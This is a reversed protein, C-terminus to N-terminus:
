QPFTHLSFIGHISTTCFRYNIKGINMKGEFYISNRYTFLHRLSSSPVFLIHEKQLFMLQHRAPILLVTVSIKIITVGPFRRKLMLPVQVLLGFTHKESATSSYQEKFILSTLQKELTRNQLQNQAAINLPL